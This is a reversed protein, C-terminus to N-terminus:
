LEDSTFRVNDTRSEVVQSQDYPGQLLDARLTAGGHTPSPDNPDYAFQFTRLEAPQGPSLRGNEALYFESSSKAEPPFIESSDWYNEGIQYFTVPPTNPWGNDMDRLYYDFFRIALSDHWGAANPFSLEGQRATGVQAPGAGGHAWPGMLLRHQSRVAEDSVSRLEGFQRVMADANHDYWGGIMLVPVKIRDSYTTAAEAIDWTLNHVPNAYLLRSFNFGLGDLQEIYETRAMGGPFYELYDFSADSVLPVMCTLSPPQERATQFQVNGLASPGWLGIKGNCWSQTAIWEVLDYGDEGRNADVKCAAASGYFCRWDAIVFAYPSGALDKDIGLPLGISRFALRIYPTQILIVPFSGTDAPLYIDAALEKGDRMPVQVVQPNLAQALVSQLTFSLCFSALVM